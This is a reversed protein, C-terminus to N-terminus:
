DSNLLYFYNTAKIIFISIYIAVRIHLKLSTNNACKDTTKTHLPVKIEHVTNNCTSLFVQYM